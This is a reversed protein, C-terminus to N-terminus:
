WCEINNVLLRPVAKGRNSHHTKVDIFKFKGERGRCEGRWLGSVNMETVKITDGKRFALAETDYPSPVCDKLARATLLTRPELQARRAIPPCHIDSLSSGTKIKLYNRVFLRSQSTQFNVSLPQPEISPSRQDSCVSGTTMEQIPQHHQHQGAPVSQIKEGSPRSSILKDSNTSYNLKLRDGVSGNTNDSVVYVEHKSTRVKMMSQKMVMLSYKKKRLFDQQKKRTNVPFDQRSGHQQQTPLYTSASMEEAYVGCLM